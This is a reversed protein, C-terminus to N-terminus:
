RSYHIIDMTLWHNIKYIEMFKELAIWFDYQWKDEESLEKIIDAPYSPDIWFLQYTDNAVTFYEIRVHWLDKYDGGVVEHYSRFQSTTIWMYDCLEKKIDNYEYYEITHKNIMYWYNYPYITIIVKLM